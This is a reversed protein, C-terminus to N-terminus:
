AMELQFLPLLVGLAHWHTAFFVCNGNTPLHRYDTSTRRVTQPAMKLPHGEPCDTFIEEQQRSAQGIRFHRLPDLKGHLVFDM